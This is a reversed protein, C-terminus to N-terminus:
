FVNFTCVLYPQAPPFKNLVSSYMSKYSESDDCPRFIQPAQIVTTPMIQGRTSIPNVTQGFVPLPSALAGWGGRNCCDQCQRFDGFM